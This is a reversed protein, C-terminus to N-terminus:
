DLSALLRQAAKLHPADVMKGNLSLTGAGPNAAFIAVV